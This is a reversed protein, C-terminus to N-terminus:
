ISYIVYTYKRIVGEDWISSGLRVGRECRYLFGMNLNLGKFRKMCDVIFIRILFLDCLNLFM